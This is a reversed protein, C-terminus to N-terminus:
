DEIIYKDNSICYSGDKHATIYFTKGNGTVTVYCTGNEDFRDSIDISQEHWYVTATGDDGVIVDPSDLTDMIEDETLPREKGFMDTAVGGGAAVYKEGDEGTVTVTYESTPSNEDITLVADTQEGYRWIQITRQIGGVNAAYASVAGGVLLVAAAAIAILKRSAKRATRNENKMITTETENRNNIKQMLESSFGDSTRLAGFAQRYREKNTM